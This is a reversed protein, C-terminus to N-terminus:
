RQQRNRQDHACTWLSPPARRWAPPLPISPLWIARKRLCAPDSPHAWREAPSRREPGAPRVSDAITSGPFTPTAPCPNTQLNQNAPSTYWPLRLSSLASVIRFEQALVGQIPGKKLNFPRLWGSVKEHWSNSLWGTQAWVIYAHHFLKDRFHCIVALTQLHYHAKISWVPKFTRLNTAFKQARKCWTEEVRIWTGM